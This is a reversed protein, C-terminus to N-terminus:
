NSNNTQVDEVEENNCIMQHVQSLEWKAQTKDIQCKNNEDKFHLMVIFNCLLFLMILNFSVFLLDDEYIRKM